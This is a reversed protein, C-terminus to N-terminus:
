PADALYGIPDALFLGFTSLCGQWVGIHAKMEERTDAASVLTSYMVHPRGGQDEFVRCSISTQNFANLQVLTTKRQSSSASFALGQCSRGKACGVFQANFAFAPTAVKLFVETDTTQAIEAKAGMGALVSILGEPDRANFGGSAAAPRASAKPAPKAPTAAQCPGASGVLLVLLALAKPSMGM